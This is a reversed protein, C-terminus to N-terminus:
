NSIDMKPLHRISFLLILKSLVSLTTNDLSIKSKEEYHSIFSRKFFRQFIVFSKYHPLAHPM